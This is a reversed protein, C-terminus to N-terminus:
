FRLWQSIFRINVAVNTAYTEQIVGVHRTRHETIDNTNHLIWTKKYIYLQIRVRYDVPEPYNCPSVVALNPHTSWEDTVVFRLVNQSTSDFSMIILLSLVTHQICMRLEMLNNNGNNGLLCRSGVYRNSMHTQNGIQICEWIALNMPGVPASLLTWQALMPGVQTRDAGSPQPSETHPWPSSVSTM